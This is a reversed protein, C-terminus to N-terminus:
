DRRILARPWRRSASSPRAPSGRKFIERRFLKLCGQRFSVFIKFPRVNFYRAPLSYPLSHSAPIDLTERDKQTKARAESRLPEDGSKLDLFINFFYPNHERADDGVVSARGM